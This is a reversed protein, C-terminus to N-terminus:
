RLYKSSHETVFLICWYISNSHSTCPVVPSPDKLHDFDIDCTNLEVLITSVIISLNDDHQRYINEFSNLFFYLIQDQCRIILFCILSVVPTHSKSSKVDWFYIVLKKKLYQVQPCVQKGDVFSHNMAVGYLSHLLGHLAVHFGKSFFEIIYHRPNLYM